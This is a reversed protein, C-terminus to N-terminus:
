IAGKVNVSLLVDTPSNYALKASGLGLTRLGTYEPTSTCSWVCLVDLVQEIKYLVSNADSVSLLASATIDRAARRKKIIIQGYDDTTIISNTRPAAEPGSLTLGLPAMDGAAFFGVAVVGSGSTFTVSLECNSYPDFGTGLYDTQPRFPDFFYEYYDAPASGELVVTRTDIVTGGPADKVTVTFSDADLGAMFISNFPGPTMVVTFPSTAKTSTSIVGDFMAHANDAGLERWRKIANEPATADVGAIQNEFITGTAARSVRDGVNYSTTSVWAAPETATTSTINAATISLPVLLSLEASM